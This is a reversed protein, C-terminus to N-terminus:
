AMSNVVGTGGRGSATRMTRLRTTDISKLDVGGDVILFFFFLFLFFCVCVERLKNFM